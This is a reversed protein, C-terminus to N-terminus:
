HPLSYRAGYSAGRLGGRVVLRASMLGAADSLCLKCTDYDLAAAAAVRNLHWLPIKAAGFCFFNLFRRPPFVEERDQQAQAFIREPHRINSKKEKYELSSPSFIKEQKCHKSRVSIGVICHVATM